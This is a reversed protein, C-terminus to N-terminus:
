NSYTFYNICKSLEDNIAIDGNSFQIISGPRLMKENDTALNNDYNFSEEGEVFNFIIISSDNSELQGGNNNFSVILNGDKLQYLKYPKTKNTPVNFEKVIKGNLDLIIFNFNAVYKQLNQPDLIEEFILSYAKLGIIYQKEFFHSFFYM